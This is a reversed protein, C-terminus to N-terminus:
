DNKRLFSEVGELNPIGTRGGLQTCKLAAVAGAFRLIRAIPWAQLLGFIFAGHFVDGAGTTDVVPVQFAPQHIVGESNAAYSGNKGCTVVAAKAGFKLLAKAADAQNIEGFYQQVFNESVVPYDVLALLDEIQPRMSGVDMVVTRGAERAWRAAQLSAQVERGDLHLITGKTIVTRSLEDPKFDSITTRNLAITKKGSIKDIWIFARPTSSKGDIVVGRTDVGADQLEQTIFRGEDDDGIKGIYATKIGLRALTVLATPVPGGGQKAFAVLETKQDLEPYEPLLCLYDSACIGFGVCDVMLKMRRGNM